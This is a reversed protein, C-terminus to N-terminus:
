TDTDPSTRSSDRSFQYKSYVTLIEATIARYLFALDVSGAKERIKDCAVNIKENVLPQLKLAKSKSFADGFAARRQTYQKYEETGFMAYTLGYEQGSIAWKDLPKFAFLYTFFESDRIHLEDPGIRIIPGYKDHLEPLRSWLRGNKYSDWYFEYLRSAACIQPGPFKSLPHFYLRRIYVAAKYLVLFIALGAVLAASHSLLYSTSM